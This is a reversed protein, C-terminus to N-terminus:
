FSLSAAKRNFKDKMGEILWSTDGKSENEKKDFFLDSWTWISICTELIAM